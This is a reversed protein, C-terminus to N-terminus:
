EKPADAKKSKEKPEIVDAGLKKMIQLTNSRVNHLLKLILTGLKLGKKIAEQVTINDKKITNEVDEIEKYLDNTRIM